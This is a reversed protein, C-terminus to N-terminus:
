LETLKIFVRRDAPVSRFQQYGKDQLKYALSDFQDYAFDFRKESVIRSGRIARAILVGYGVVFELRLKDLGYWEM